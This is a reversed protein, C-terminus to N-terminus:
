FYIKIRKLGSETNEDIKRDSLNTFSGTKVQLDNKEQIEETFKAAKQGM